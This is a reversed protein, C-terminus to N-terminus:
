SPLGYGIEAGAGFLFVFRMKYTGGGNERQFLLNSM